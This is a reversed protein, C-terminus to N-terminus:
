FDRYRDYSASLQDLHACSHDDAASGGDDSVSTAERSMCDINVHRKLPFSTSTSVIRTTENRRKRDVTSM